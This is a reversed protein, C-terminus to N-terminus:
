PLTAYGAYAQFAVGFAALIAAVANCASALKQRRVLDAPLGDWYSAKIIPSVFASITWALASLALCIISLYTALAPTM